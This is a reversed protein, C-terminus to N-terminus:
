RKEERKEVNWIESLYILIIGLKEDNFEISDDNFKVTKGNRFTYESSFLKTKLVLHVSFDKDKYFQLKNRIIEEDRKAM